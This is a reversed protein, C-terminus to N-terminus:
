DASRYNRRFYGRIATMINQRTRPRGYYNKKLIEGSAEEEDLTYNIADAGTLTYVVAVTLSDSVNIDSYEGEATVGVEDGLFVGILEGPVIEADTLGDYVKSIVEGDNPASISLAYPTIEIGEDIVVDM